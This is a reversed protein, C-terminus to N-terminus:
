APIKEPAEVPPAEKPIEYPRPEENPQTDIERVPDGIHSASPGWPAFYFGPKEASEAIYGIM